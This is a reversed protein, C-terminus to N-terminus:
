ASRKSVYINLLMQFSKPLRHDITYKKLSKNYNFIWFALILIDNDSISEYKIRWFLSLEKCIDEHFFDIYELAIDVRPPIKEVM